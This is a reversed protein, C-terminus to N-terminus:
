SRQLCHLGGGVFKWPGKLGQGGFSCLSVGELNLNFVFEGVFVCTKGGGGCSPSFTFQGIFVCSKNSSEIGMLYGTKMRDVLSHNWIFLAAPRYCSYTVMCPQVLLLVSCKTNDEKHQKVDVSVMCVISSLSGLGDVDVLVAGSVPNTCFFDKWLECVKLLGKRYPTSFWCSPVWSKWVDLFPTCGKSYSIASVSLFHM